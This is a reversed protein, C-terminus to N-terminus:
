HEAYNALLSKLTNINEKVRTKDFLKIIINKNYLLPILEQFQSSELLDGEFIDLHEDNNKRNSHLYITKCYSEISQFFEKLTIKGYAFAHGVDFSLGFENCDVGRVIELLVSPEYEFTNCLSIRIGENILMIDKWFSISNSIHANDYFDLNIMPLFTSLFIIEDSKVLKAFDISQQVKKTVVQKIEIEATGPNLDIYAGDTIILKGYNKNLFSNVDSEYNGSLYNPYLPNEINIIEIEPLVDDIIDNINFGIGVM